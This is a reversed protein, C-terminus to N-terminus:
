SAIRESGPSVLPNAPMSRLLRKLLVAHETLVSSRVAEYAEGPYTAARPDRTLEYHWDRDDM